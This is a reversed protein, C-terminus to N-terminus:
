PLTSAMFFTEFLFSPLPMRITYFLCFLGLFAASRFLARHASAKKALLCRLPSDNWAQTALARDLALESSFHLVILLGACATHLISRPSWADESNLMLILVVDVVRLLTGTIYPSLLGATSLGTQIVTACGTGDKPQRDWAATLSRIVLRVITWLRLLCLSAYLLVIGYKDVRFLNSLTYRNPPGYLQRYLFMAGVFIFKTFSFPLLVRGWSTTVQNGAILHLLPGDSDSYDPAGDPVRLAHGIKSVANAIRTEMGFCLLPSPQTETVLM